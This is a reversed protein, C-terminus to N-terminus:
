GPGVKGHGLTMGFLLKLAIELEEEMFTGIGSMSKSHIAQITVGLRRM